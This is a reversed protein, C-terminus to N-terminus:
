AYGFYMNVNNVKVHISFSLICENIDKMGWLLTLCLGFYMNVNNVKVHISLSMICENVPYM